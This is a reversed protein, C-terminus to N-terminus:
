DQRILVYLDGYLDLTSQNVRVRIRDAAAAFREWRLDDVIGTDLNLGIPDEQRLRPYRTYGTAGLGEGTDSIAEGSRVLSVVLEAGTDGNTGTDHVTLATREGTDTPAWRYSHVEGTFRPGTDDYLGTDVHRIQFIQEAYRM